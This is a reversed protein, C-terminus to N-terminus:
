NDHYLFTRKVCTSKLFSIVVMSTIKCIFYVSGLYTKRIVHTFIFLLVTNLDNQQYPFLYLDSRARDLSYPTNPLVNWGFNLKKELTISASHVKAKDHPLM